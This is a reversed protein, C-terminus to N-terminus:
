PSSPPRLALLGTILVSLFSAVKISAFLTRLRRPVARDFNQRTAHERLDERKEEATKSLIADTMWDPFEHVDYTRRLGVGLVVISVPLVAAAAAAIQHGAQMLFSVTMVGCGVYILDVRSLSDPKPPTLGERREALQRSYSEADYPFLVTMNAEFPPVAVDWQWGPPIDPFRALMQNSLEHFGRQREYVQVWREDATRFALWITDISFEDTKYTRIEQIDSWHVLQPTGGVGAAEFGEDVLTIEPEPVQDTSKRWWQTLRTGM